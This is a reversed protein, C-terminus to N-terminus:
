PTAADALATLWQQLLQREAPTLPNPESELKSSLTALGATRSQGHCQITRIAVLARRPSGTPHSRTTALRELWDSLLQREAPSLASRAETLLARLAIAHVTVRDGAPETDPSGNPAEAAAPVTVATLIAERM